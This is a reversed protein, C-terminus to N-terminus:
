NGSSDVMAFEYGSMKIVRKGNKITLEVTEGAFFDFSYGPIIAHQDSLPSLPLQFSFKNPYQVRGSLELVGYQNIKLEVGNLSQHESDVINTVKYKGTAERWFAPIPKKDMKVGGLSRRGNSYQEGVVIEGNVEELFIDMVHVPILGLLKFKLKMTNNSYPTAVLTKGNAAFTVKLKSGSKVMNVMGEDTSYLGELKLLQADTLKVPKMEPVTLGTSRGEKEKKLYDIVKGYIARHIATGSNSNSCVAMTMNYKPIVYLMTFFPEHIGGKSLRTYQSFQRIDWMLGDDKGFNLPADSFQPKFAEQAIAKSLFTRGGFQGQNLYLQGLNVLDRATANVGDSGAYSYAYTPSLVGKQYSKTETLQGYSSNIMNLPTFVEDKVYDQITKGSVKEVLVALLDTGWDSYQNVIGPASILYSEKSIDLIRSQPRDEKLLFGKAYLRPLGAFHALLHRVTFPQNGDFHQKMSFESVYDIYPKDINIKGESYLKLVATATILKSVSGIAFQTDEDVLTGAEKNAYGYGSSLVLENDIMIAVNIGTVKHKNLQKPIFKNLSNKLADHGQGIGQSIITCLLVLIIFRKM